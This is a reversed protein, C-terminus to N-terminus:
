AEVKEDHYDYYYYYSGYEPVKHDPDNLVAGVVHAGVNLLRQLAEQAAERESYGARLVLLVGNAMSGLILSDAAVHVPPTDLIVIDYQAALSEITTRAIASGLLESPNAPLLGASILSLNEISTQQVVQEVTAQRALLQSFGPERPLGFMNHLRAKRMDCDIILVRMGQQAFTVALNAATTTKGDKPSPSTIVITRLTQIAQSFILNTRLTRYAEAGVSGFDTVTVLSDNGSRDRRTTMGPLKLGRGLLGLKGNSTAIQPIVALGPVHLMSEVDDRRRITTNLREVLVAAGGGLILGIILGTLIRFLAGRGVPIDPQTAFDVIEVQGVEVAESIRARQYEERLQDAMKRATEVRQLLRAEVAQVAPLKQMEASNRTRLADLSSIRADLADLNSRVASLLGAQTSNILTDLKM